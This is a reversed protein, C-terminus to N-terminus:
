KKRLIRVSLLIFAIIIAAFIIQAYAFPFYVKASPLILVLAPLWILMIVAAMALLSSIGLSSVAMFGTFMGTASAVAAFVAGFLLYLGTIKFFKKM